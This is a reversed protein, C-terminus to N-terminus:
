LILVCDNLSAVWYGKEPEMDTTVTYSKTVPDWWYAPTVASSDPDDNPDAISVTTNVSGIMNWGAKVDTTWTDTPTGSIAITTNETVAVWYGKEPEIVASEYYSRDAANWTRRTIRSM